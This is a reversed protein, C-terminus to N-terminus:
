RSTREQLSAARGGGRCAFYAVKELSVSLDIQEVYVGPPTRLSVPAFNLIGRIGAAVLQDAVDQAASAPVCIVGVCAKQRAVIAKLRSMDHCLCGGIVRGIVRPRCDFAAVIRPGARRHKQNSLLAEGLHGVGVLVAAQDRTVGDLLDGIARHLQAVSYGHSTSGECDVQMLDRRLQAASVGARAALDRSYVQTQEDALDALVRRYVSLRHVQRASPTAPRRAIDLPPTM